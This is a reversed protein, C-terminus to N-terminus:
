IHTVTVTVLVILMNSKLPGQTSLMTVTVLNHTVTVIVLELNSKLPGQTSLMTVTVVNHTVIVFILLDHVM